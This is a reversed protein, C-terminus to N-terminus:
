LRELPQIDYTKAIYDAFEIQKSHYPIGGLKTCLEIHQNEPDGPVLIESEGEAPEQDKCQHILSSLRDEFGPAFAKPDIAVYCQGLDAESSHESWVKLNSGFNSGSLIGCFLEVMMGLGYGKYGSTEELGGLPCLGGHYLAEEADTCPKGNRDLAWGIPINQGLRKKIEVKGLAVSTTAMDLVFEEGNNGKAAVSIPNTGLTYKKARTPIMMPSTNCFAMGILGQSMARMSYWGAIGFHNSRKACVWGIGINKAKEIALDICYKGVSPGLCNNGDVLATAPTQQIVEPEKDVCIHGNKLDQMYFELRNMGHSYHGRHDAAVILEALNEAHEAKAGVKELCRITFAKLSNLPVIIEKDSSM